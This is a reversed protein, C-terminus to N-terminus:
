AQLLDLVEQKSPVRGIVKVEENIVVAPTTLINYEMMEQIDEVKKVQADIQNEDIVEQVIRTATKCKACGTGLVKILISM